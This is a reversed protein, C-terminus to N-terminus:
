WKNERIRVGGRVAVALGKAVPCEVECGQGFFMAKYGGNEGDEIM